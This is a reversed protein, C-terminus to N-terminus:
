QDLATQIITHLDTLLKLETASTAATQISHTGNACSSRLYWSTYDKPDSDIFVTMGLTSASYRAAM